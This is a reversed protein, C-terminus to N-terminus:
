EPQLRLIALEPRNFLRPLAGKALGRTVFLRADGVSYLGGTYEPFWGQNPAFIGPLLGPIRLQGGHAHGSVVLDFGSTCYEIREPRHSLLLTFTDDRARCADIQDRWEQRYLCQPDDAGAIRMGMFDVSEGELVTAGMARIEAKIRDYDGSACEHNGTVYFVPLAGDLGKLLARLGDLEDLSDAMDGPLLLADPAADRIAQVLEQQSEGFFSNHLDGAVALTIESKLKPSRIEYSCVELQQSLPFPASLLLLAALLLLLHRLRFKKGRM